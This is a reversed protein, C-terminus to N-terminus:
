RPTSEKMATTTLIASWRRTLGGITQYSNPWVEEEKITKIVREVYANDDPADYGTYQGKVGHKGLLEVFNKSCPRSGNDARLVLDRCKEKDMLGESELAMRAAAIWEWTPCRRSLTGGLVKRSFCDIVVLLYFTKIHNFM